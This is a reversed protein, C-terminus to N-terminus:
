KQVFQYLEFAKVGADAIHKTLVFREDVERSLYLNDLAPRGAPMLLYDVQYRQALELVQERTALPTMVSKYGFTSMVYPDQSMLRIEGDGTMDPMTELTDVLVQISAYFTDAITTEQEIIRYSSMSLGIVVFGIFIGKAISQRILHDVILAGIPILLPVVTLCAKEFSGSQSKYPLLIPYAVLIGLIWIMTPSILILQEWDRKWVIWVLGLPVILVLIDLSVIIQKLAAGFEFLRKSVLEGLTQQELMTDLTIPTDYAYHDRQHVMFFMRSTEATGLIGLEQQNRILWPSITIAFAIPILIIAFSMMQHSVIDRGKWLYLALVVVLMPLFVISDNRTLYALGVGIGSLIFVWWKNKRLGYNLLLVSGTILVMNLITTDSRLSNWVIDPLVATFVTAILAASDSGKLQKTALYVLLPLFTGSIIFIILASQPTEGGISMGVAVAVGALPMWHDIPHVIDDPVHSYHWVYDVTFGQGQVLRQGLNYYHNQDNLGPNHILSLLLLRLILGGFIIAFLTLIPQKMSKFM